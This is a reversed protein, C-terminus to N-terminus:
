LQSFSSKIWFKLRDTSFKLGDTETGHGAGNLWYFVHKGSRRHLILGSRRLLGLHHSIVPQALGLEDQLSAVHREGKRLIVLIQLRTKDSLLWFLTAWEDVTSAPKGETESELIKSRACM